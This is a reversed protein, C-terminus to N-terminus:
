AGEIALQRPDVPPPPKVPLFPALGYAARLIALLDVLDLAVFAPRRDDRIVAIPIAREGSDARAQALAARVNPQKGTKCEIWFGPLGCVDPDDCGVRSQWGRRISEAFHPFTERLLRALEQEGRKGKTRSRRGSM